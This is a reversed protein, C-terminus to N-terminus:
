AVKQLKEVIRRRECRKINAPTSLKPFNQFKLLHPSYHHASLHSYYQLLVDRTKAKKYTTRFVCTGHQNNYITGHQTALNGFIPTQTLMFLYDKVEQIFLYDKLLISVTNIMYKCM